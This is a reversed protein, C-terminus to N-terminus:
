AARGNGQASPQEPALPIRAAVRTGQGPQSALTLRGGMAQVRERMGTLGSGLPASPKLGCGDDSVEVVLSPAAGQERRVGVTVRSAGAHRSVNTLCEQVIRYVAIDVGQRLRGLPAGIQLSCSLEAHRELWSAVLSKLADGLELEDLVLPRLRLIMARVTEQIHRATAALSDLRRRVTEPREEGLLQEIGATDAQIAFLCQGIEDHLERAITRREEEQLNIVREALRRNEDVTRELTEAMRNFKGSLRAMEEIGYAPLRTTFDGRELRSFGHLIAELPGLALKMSWFVAVWILVALAGAIWLLRRAYLWDEEIEDDPYGEVVLAGYPQAGVLIPIRRSFPPPRVLGAFWRPARHEPTKGLLGSAFLAEGRRGVIALRVHRAQTRDLERALWALKQAATEPALRLAGARGGLLHEVLETSSLMERAVAQRYSHVIAAGGGLMSLALAASITLNLRLKLTMSAAAAPAPRAAGASGTTSKAPLGWYAM